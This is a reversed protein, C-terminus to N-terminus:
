MQGLKGWTARGYGVWRAGQQLYMPIDFHMVFLRKIIQYLTVNRQDM